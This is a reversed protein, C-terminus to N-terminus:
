IKETQELHQNTHHIAEALWNMRMWDPDTTYKWYADIAAKSKELHTTPPTEPKTETMTANIIPIAGGTIDTFTDSIIGIDIVQGSPTYNTQAYLIKTDEPLDSKYPHKVETLLQTLTEPAVRLIRIKM